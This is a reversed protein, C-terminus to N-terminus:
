VRAGIGQLFLKRGGPGTKDWLRLLKGSQVEEVPILIPAPAVLKVAKNISIDGTRVAEIVDDDGSDHIKKAGIVTDRGVNLLKAAKDISISPTPIGVGEDETPETHQNDGLKLTTLRAAVEGRQSTTLHRRHLNSRLVFGLADDGTYRKYVPKINANSCAAQRNRGDLVKGEFTLIPEQLGDESVSTTLERLAKANMM